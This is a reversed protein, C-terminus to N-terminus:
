RERGQRSRQYSLTESGATPNWMSVCQTRVVCQRFGQRRPYRPCATKWALAGPLNLCRLNPRTITRLRYDLKSLPGKLGAKECGVTHNGRPAGQQSRDTLPTKQFFFFHIELSGQAVTLKQMRTITTVGTVIESCM